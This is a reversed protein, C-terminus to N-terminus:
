KRNIADKMLKIFETFKREKIRIELTRNQLEIFRMNYNSLKDTGEGDTKSNNMLLKTVYTLLYQFDCDELEKLPLIDDESFVMYMIFIKELNYSEYKLDDVIEQEHYDIFKEMKQDILVMDLKGKIISSFTDQIQLIQLKEELEKLRM